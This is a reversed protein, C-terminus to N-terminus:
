KHTARVSVATAENDSIIQYKWKTLESVELGASILNHIMQVKAYAKLEKQTAHRASENKIAITIAKDYM